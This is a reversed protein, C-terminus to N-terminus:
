IGWVIEEVIVFVVNWGGLFLCLDIDLLVVLGM